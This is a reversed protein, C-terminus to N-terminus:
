YLKGAKSLFLLSVGDLILDGLASNYKLMEAAIVLCVEKDPTIIIFHLLKYIIIKIFKSYIFSILLKAKKLFLLSYGLNVLWKHQFHINASCFIFLAFTSLQLWDFGEM